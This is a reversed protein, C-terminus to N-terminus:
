RGGRGSSPSTRLARSGFLGWTAVRGSMAGFASWGRAAHPDGSADSAIVGPEGPYLGVHPVSYWRTLGGTARASRFVGLSLRLEPRLRAMPAYGEEVAGEPAHLPGMLGAAGPTISAQASLRGVVTRLWDRPVWGALAAPAATMVRQLFAVALMNTAMRQPTLSVRVDAGTTDVVMGLVPQRQAPLRTKDEAVDLGMSACAERVVGLARECEECSEAVIILDDVYTLLARVGRARLIFTLEATLLCFIFAAPGIGFPLRTWTYTQGGWRV